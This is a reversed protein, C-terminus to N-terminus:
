FEAVAIPIGNIFLVADPIIHGRASTLEVKFQNIVLFNNNESHDFDIYRIPQPRGNDWDSLGDVVTGKLL